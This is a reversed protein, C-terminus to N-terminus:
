RVTPSSRRFWAKPPAIEYIMPHLSPEFGFVKALPPTDDAHITAKIPGYIGPGIALGPMIPPNYWWTLVALKEEGPHIDLSAQKNMDFRSQEPRKPLMGIAEVTLSANRVTRTSRNAIAVRYEWYTHGLFNEELDRAPEIDFFKRGPNSPDFIIDLPHDLEKTKTTPALSKWIVLGLTVVFIVSPVWPPTTLLWGLAQKWIEQSHKYNEVADIRCTFDILTIAGTIVLAGTRKIGPWM